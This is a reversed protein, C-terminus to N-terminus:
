PCGYLEEHYNNVKANAFTGGGSYEQRINFFIGKCFGHDDSPNKVFMQGTRYRYLPIGIDNKAITWNNDDFGIKHIKLASPNKLYNKMLSELNKDNYRFLNYNIKLISIKKSAIEKLDDLAKNISDVSEKDSNWGTQTAIYEKRAKNSVSRLMWEYSGSNYLGETGGNFKEANKKTKDIEKLYYSVIRSQEPNKVKSLCNLYEESDKAILNWIAPNNEYSLFTNPLSEFGDLVTKLEQLNKKQDEFEVKDKIYYTPWTKKGTLIELKFKYKQAVCLLYPSVFNKYKGAKSNFDKIDYYKYISNAKYWKLSNQRNKIEWATLDKPGVQYLGDKKDFIKVTKLVLNKDVAIALDNINLNPDFDASARPNYEINYNDKAFVNPTIFLVLSIFFPLFTKKMSLIEM